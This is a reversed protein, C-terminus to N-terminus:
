AWARVNRRLFASSQQWGKSIRQRMESGAIPSYLLALVVGFILGWRFAMKARKRRRQRQASQEQWSHQLEKARTTAQQFSFSAKSTGKGIVDSTKAMGSRINSQLSNQMEQLSKQAKELNKQAQRMNKQAFTVAIAAGIALWTRTKNWGQQISKQMQASTLQAMDKASALIEQKDNRLNKPTFRAINNAKASTTKAINRTTNKSHKSRDYVKM